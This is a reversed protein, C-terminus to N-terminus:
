EIRFEVILPFEMSCPRGACDAPKFETKFLVFAAAKAMREDPTQFVSINEVSGEAGVLAILFMDGSVVFHQQVKILDRMIDEMGDNPYPPEEDDALQEYYSRFTARESETLEEYTKEFPINWTAARRRIHTGTPPDDLLVERSEQALVPTTLLVVLLAL